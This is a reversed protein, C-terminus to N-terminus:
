AMPMASPGTRPSPCPSTGPAQRYLRQDVLNGFYLTGDAVTYAAGGCEHVRSRVDFPPPTMEQVQGDPTRHM